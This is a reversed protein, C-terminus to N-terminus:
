RPPMTMTPPATMTPAIPPLPSWYVGPWLRPDPQYALRRLLDATTRVWPDLARSLGDALALLSEPAFYPGINADGLVIARGDLGLVLLIQGRRRLVTPVAARVYPLSIAQGRFWGIRLWTGRLRYRFENDVLFILVAAAIGGVIVLIDNVRQDAPQQPLELM